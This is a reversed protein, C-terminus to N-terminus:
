EGNSPVEGISVGVGNEEECHQRWVFGRVADVAANSAADGRALLASCVGAAARCGYAVNGSSLIANQQCCGLIISFDIMM